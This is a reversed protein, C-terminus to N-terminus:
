HHVHRNTQSYQHQQGKFEPSFVYSDEVRALVLSTTEAACICVTRVPTEILKVAVWTAM